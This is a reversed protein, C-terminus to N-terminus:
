ESKEKSKTEEQVPAEEKKEEKPAEDIPEEPSEEEAPKEAEADKKELEIEKKSKKETRILDDKTDYIHVKILFDNTGFRGKILNIKIVEKDVLFEKIILDRIEKYSPTINSELSFEIERRNYLKNNFDKIIKM